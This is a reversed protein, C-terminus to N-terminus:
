SLRLKEAQHVKQRAFTLPFEIDKKAFFLGIENAKLMKLLDYVLGVVDYLVCM